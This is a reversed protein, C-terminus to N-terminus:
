TKVDNMYKLADEVRLERVGPYQQQQQLQMHSHQQGPPMHHGPRPGGGGGVGLRQLVHHSRDVIPVVSADCHQREAQKAKVPIQVNATKAHVQISQELAATAVSNTVGPSFSVATTVDEDGM